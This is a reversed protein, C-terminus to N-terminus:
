RSVPGPTPTWRARSLDKEKNKGSGDWRSIREMAEARKNHAVTGMASRDLLRRAAPTLNGAADSRRPTKPTFSPPAM